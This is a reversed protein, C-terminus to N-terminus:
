ARVLRRHFFHDEREIGGNIALSGRMVDGLQQLVRIHFYRPERMAHRHTPLKVIKIFASKGGRDLLSRQELIEEAGAPQFAQAKAALGTAVPKSYRGAYLDRFVLGLWNVRRYFRRGLVLLHPRDSGVCDAARVADGHAAPESM